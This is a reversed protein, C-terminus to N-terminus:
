EFIAAELDGLSLLSLNRDFDLDGRAEFPKWEEAIRAFRAAFLAFAEERSLMTSLFTCLIMEEDGDESEGLIDFRFVTCSM